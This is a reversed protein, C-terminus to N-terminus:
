RTMTKFAKFRHVKTFLTAPSIGFGFLYSTQVMDQLVRSAMIFNFKRDREHEAFINRRKTQKLKIVLVKLFYMFIYSHHRWAYSIFTSIQLSTHITKGSSSSEIRYEMYDSSYIPKWIRPPLCYRPPWLREGGGPQFLTLQVGLNRTPKLGVPGGALPIVAKGKSISKSETQTMSSIIKSM